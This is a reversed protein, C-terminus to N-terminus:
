ADREGGESASSERPGYAVGIAELEDDTGTIPEYNGLSVAVLMEVRERVAVVAMHFEFLNGDEKRFAVAARDFIDEIKHIEMPSVRRQGFGIKHISKLIGLASM